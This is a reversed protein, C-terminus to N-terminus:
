KAGLHAKITAARPDNPNKNAWDLAAADQPSVQGGGGGPAAQGGGGAPAAAGGGVAALTPLTRFQQPIGAAEMQGNIQNYLDGYSKRYNAASANALDVIQQRNDASLVGGSQFKKKMVDVFDKYSQGKTILGVQAETVANGGTNMKTM